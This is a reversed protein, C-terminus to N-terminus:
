IKIVAVFPLFNFHSYYYVDALIPMYFKIIVWALQWPPMIYAIHMGQFHKRMFKYIYNVTAFIIARFTFYNLLKRHFSTAVFVSSHKNEAFFTEAM